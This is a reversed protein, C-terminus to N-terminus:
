NKNIFARNVNDYLGRSLPLIVNGELEVATRSIRLIHLLSVLYSRHIRFFNDSLKTEFSSIREKIKYEGDKTHIHIYHLSSEVYLIDTEILKILEGDCHIIVSPPEVSLHEAARDLVESLKEKKVPKLLYHLADVEYGEGIFEAHSTLFIIEARRDHNRIQKALDIGSVSHLEVDLLLIDFINSNGGYEFLFEEASSFLQISISHGSLDAWSSVIYQIKKLQEPEDDFIAITYNM